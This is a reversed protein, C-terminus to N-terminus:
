NEMWIHLSTSSLNFSLCDFYRFLRFTLILSLITYILGTSLHRWPINRTPKNQRFRAKGQRAKRNQTLYDSTIYNYSQKLSIMNVVELELCVLCLDRLPLILILDWIQSQRIPEPDKLCASLPNIHHQNILALHVVPVDSKSDKCNASLGSLM